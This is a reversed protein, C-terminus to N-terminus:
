LDIADISPLSLHDFHNPNLALDERIGATYALRLDTDMNIKCIATKSMKIIDEELKLYELFMKLGEALACVLGGVFFAKVYIM